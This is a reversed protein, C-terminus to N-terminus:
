QRLNHMNIRLSEEMKRKQPLRKRIKFPMKRKIMSNVCKSISRMHYQELWEKTHDVFDYLSRKWSPTGLAQFSANIRPMFYHKMGNGSSIASSERDGYLADGLMTDAQQRLVKTQGIVAPFYSLEEIGHDNQPFLIAFSYQIEKTFIGKRPIHPLHFQGLVVLLLQSLEM